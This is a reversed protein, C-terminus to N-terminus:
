SLAKGFVLIGFYSRIKAAQQGQQGQDKNNRQWNGSWGKAKKCHASLSDVQSSVELSM